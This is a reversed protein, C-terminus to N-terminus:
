SRRRSRVIVFALAGLIPILLIVATWIVQAVDQIEEKRLRFLAWIALCIWTALLALNLIQVVLSGINIEM